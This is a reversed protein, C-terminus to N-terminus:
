IAFLDRVCAMKHGATYGEAFDGILFKIPYMIIHLLPLNFPVCAVFSYSKNIIYIVFNRGKKDDYLKPPTNIYQVKQGKVM